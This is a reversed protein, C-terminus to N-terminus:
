MERTYLDDDAMRRLRRSRQEQYYRDDALELRAMDRMHRGRERMRTRANAIKEDKTLIRLESAEELEAERAALLNEYPSKGGSGMLAKGAVPLVDVLIILLALVLHRFFVSTHEGSLTSLAEMRILLGDVERNASEELAIRKDRDAELERQKLRLREEEEKLSRDEAAIKQDIGKLTANLDRVTDQQDRMQSKKQLASPGEGPLHTNSKGDIEDDLRTQLKDLQEGADKIKQEQGAHQHRLQRLRESPQGAAKIQQDLANIQQTLDSRGVARDAEDMRERRIAAVEATVEPEFIVLILPESITLGLIVSLFLRPALAGIKAKGSMKSRYSSVLWRDLNFIAVAWLAGVIANVAFSTKFALSVSVVMATGAMVATTVVGGGLGQYRTTEARPCRDLIDRDAGSAFIMFREVFGRPGKLRVPTISSRMDASGNVSNLSM